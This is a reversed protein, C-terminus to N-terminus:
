VHYGGVLKEAVEVGHLALRNPHGGPGQKDNSPGARAFRAHKRVADRVEDRGIDGGVVNKGDGEGIFRRVLHSIPHRFQELVM